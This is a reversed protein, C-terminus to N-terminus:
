SAFAHPLAVAGLRLIALTAIPWEARNALFTLVVDGRGVGIASLDAALARAAQASDRWVDM